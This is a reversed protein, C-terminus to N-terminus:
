PGSSVASVECTDAPFGGVIPWAYSLQAWFNAVLWTMVGILSIKGGWGVAAYSRPLTGAGGVEVVVDVGGGTVVTRGDPGQGEAGGTLRQVENEWDPTTRYNIAADAGLAKLREVGGRAELNKAVVEDVTQARASAASCAVLAFVVIGARSVFRM